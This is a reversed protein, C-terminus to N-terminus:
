EMTKEPGSNRLSRVFSNVRDMNAEETNFKDIRRWGTLAFNADLNPRPVLILKWADKKVREKLKSVFDLCSDMEASGTALKQSKDQALRQISKQSEIECNYSIIIYGHELSHILHGDGQPKTYVGFKTWVKDHPGSTPPNSNYKFKEWEAQPVHERGQDPLVLGPLPKSSEGVMWVIGFAVLLVALGVIVWKRINARKKQGAAEQRKQEKILKRREKRSLKSWNIQQDDM